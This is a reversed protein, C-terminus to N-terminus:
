FEEDEDFDPDEDGFDFEADGEEEDMDDDSEDDFEEDEFEEADDFDEEEDSEEDGFEDEDTDFEAEDDFEEDSEGEFEDDSEEDFEEDGFDEDDSDELNDGFDDAELELSAAVFGNDVNFDDVADFTGEGLLDEPVEPLETQTEGAQVSTVEEGEPNMADVAPEDGIAGNGTEEIVTLEVEEESTYYM